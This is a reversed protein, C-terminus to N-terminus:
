GKMTTWGIDKIVGADRQYGTLDKPHQAKKPVPSFRIKNM